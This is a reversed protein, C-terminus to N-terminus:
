KYNRCSYSFKCRLKCLSLPTQLIFIILDMSDVAVALLTPIHRFSFCIFFVLTYIFLPQHIPRSYKVLLSHKIMWMSNFPSWELRMFLLPLLWVLLLMMIAYTHFTFQPRIVFICWSMRTPTVLLYSHICQMQVCTNVLVYGFALTHITSMSYCYIM